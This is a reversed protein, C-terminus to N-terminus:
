CTPWTRGPGMDKSPRMKATEREPLVRDTVLDPMGPAGGRVEKALIRSGSSTGLRRASCVSDKSQSTPLARQCARAASRRGTRGPPSGSPVRARDLVEGAGHAQGEGVRAELVDLRGDLLALVLVHGVRRRQEDGRLEDVVGGALDLRLRHEHTVERHHGALAGEDDVAGLPHDDALEDTGRADVEVARQVLGGVDVDVADLDDRAAARPELEVDVLARGDAHADVALAALRDGHQELREAPGLVADALVERPGLGQEGRQLLVVDGGGVLRQQVDVALQARALRRRALRGLRQQLVQEEVVLAVVQGLDAAVLDVLLEADVHRDRGARQGLVVDDAGDLVEDVQVGTVLAVLGVVDVVEAVAAQAGDALQDLVLDPDAQGAHLADDALAHGRLVDLGDRRLRQDVDPRDDGGDLLEEARRLERLEHVLGVRQGAQGVLAAQRRQARATQGAVARAHLDTVDVGAVVAAHARDLGRFARVDAQDARERGVAPDVGEAEDLGRVAPDVVAPDGVLDGVQGGVLLVPEDDRLGVGDDVRLALEGLLHQDARLPPSTSSM